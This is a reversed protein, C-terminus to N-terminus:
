SYPYENYSSRPDAIPEMAALGSGRWGHETVTSAAACIGNARRTALCLSTKEFLLAACPPLQLIDEGLFFLVPAASGHRQTGHPQRSPVGQQAQVHAVRHTHRHRHRARAQARSETDSEGHARHTQPSSSPRSPSRQSGPKRSCGHPYGRPNIKNTIDARLSYLQLILPHWYWRREV